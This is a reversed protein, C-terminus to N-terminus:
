NPKNARYQLAAYIAAREPNLADHLVTLSGGTEAVVSDAIGVVKHSTGAATFTAEFKSRGRKIRSKRDVAGPVAQGFRVLEKDRRKQRVFMAVLFPAAVLFTAMAGMQWVTLGERPIATLTHFEFRGPVARAPLSDGVNIREFDEQPIKRSAEHTEDVASRFRYAVEYGTTAGHRGTLKRKSIVEVYVEVGDRDAKGDCYTLWAEWALMGASFGGLVLLGFSLVVLEFLASRRLKVTRPLPQQLEPEPQWATETM